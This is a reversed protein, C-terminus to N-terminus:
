RPRAQMGSTGRRLSANPLPPRNRVRSSRSQSTTASVSSEVAPSM